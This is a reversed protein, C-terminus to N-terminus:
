KKALQDWAFSSVAWFAWALGALFTIGWMVRGIADFTFSFILLWTVWLGIAKTVWPHMNM